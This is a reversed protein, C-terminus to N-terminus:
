TWTESSPPRTVPGVRRYVRGNLQMEMGENAMHPPRDVHWTPGLISFKFSLSQHGGDYRVRAGTLQYHSTGHHIDCDGRGDARIRIVSRPDDLARWVGLFEAPIPPVGPPLKPEFPPLELAALVVLTLGLLFALLIGLCGAACGVIFFTSTRRQRRSPPPMPGPLTM